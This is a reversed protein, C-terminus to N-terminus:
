RCNVSDFNPDPLKQGECYVLFSGLVWATRETNRLDDNM